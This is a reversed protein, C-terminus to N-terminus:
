TGSASGRPPLLRRGSSQRRRSSGRDHSRSRISGSFDLCETSRYVLRPPGDYQARRTSVGRHALTRMKPFLRVHESYSAVEEIDPRETTDIILLPVLKGDAVGKSMIAGDAVIPVPEREGSHRLNLALRNM